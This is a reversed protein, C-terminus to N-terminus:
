FARGNRATSAWKANASFAAQTTAIRPMGTRSQRRLATSRVERVSRTTICPSSALSATVTSKTPTRVARSPTTTATERKPSFAQMISRKRLPQKPPYLECNDEANQLLASKSSMGAIIIGHDVLADVLAATSLNTTDEVFISDRRVPLEPIDSERRESESVRRVQEYEAQLQQIAEDEEEEEESVVSEDALSGIDDADLLGELPIEQFVATRRRKPVNPTGDSPKSDEVPKSFATPLAAPALAAGEESEECTDEMPFDELMVSERRKPLSPLASQSERKRPCDPVSERHLSMRRRPMKTPGSEEFGMSANAAVVIEWCSIDNETFTIASHEDEEPDQRKAAVPDTVTIFSPIPM